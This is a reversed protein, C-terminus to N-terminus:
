PLAGDECAIFKANRDVWQMDKAAEFAFKCYDEVNKQGMQWPGDIENGLAWYKVNFPGPSGNAARRRALTSDGPFNCYEIWERMERVSGSGVNGGFYPEAALYRCLSIFEHTGFSNTEVNQGWWLNVTCPRDKRPGIGDQWHYDDAFCGGPWRLIPIQLQRLATLVDDRFGATNPIPSDPGVWIGGDICAGLHEIFHGHLLPSIRGIPQDPHITVNIRPV